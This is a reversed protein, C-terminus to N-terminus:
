RILWAVDSAVVLWRFSCVLALVLNLWLSWRIGLNWYVLKFSQLCVLCALALIGTVGLWGVNKILYLAIGNQEFRPGVRQFGLYTTVLDLIIAACTLSFVLLFTRWRRSRIDFDAVAATPQAQMM